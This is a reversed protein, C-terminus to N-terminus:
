VVVVDRDDGFVLPFLDLFQESIPFCPSLFLSKNLFFDYGDFTTSKGSIDDDVRGPFIFVVHLSFINFFKWTISSILLLVLASM